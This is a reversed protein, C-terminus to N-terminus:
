GVQLASLRRCMSDIGTLRFRNVASQYPEPDRLLRAMRDGLIDQGQVREKTLNLSHSRYPLTAFSPSGPLVGFSTEAAISLRSRSGQAFGVM